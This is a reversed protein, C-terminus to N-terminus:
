NKILKSIWLGQATEVRVTYIGVPLQSINIQKEFGEEEINMMTQGVLNILSIREMQLSADLRIQQQAPNPYMKIATSPLLNPIGVTSEVLRVTITDISVTANNDVSTIVLEVFEEGEGDTDGIIELPLAVSDDECGSVTFTTDAFNFDTGLTATSGAGLAVSVTTTDPNNNTAVVVIDLTSSVTDSVTKSDTYFGVVPNRPSFDALRTPQLQYDETFPANRDFQWGIGTVNWWKGGPYAVGDIDTDTDIRVTFTDVGNTFDINVGSNTLSDSPWDATDVLAVCTLTIYESETSEDLFDVEQPTVLANGSSLLIIDAVQIEALGNFQIIEGQVLLEDGETFQYGSPADNFNFVNIGGTSDILAFSYGDAGFFDIGHAIGQVQAVVNLSDADGDGDSDATLLGIPYQVFDNDEITITLVSDMGLVGGGTPASLELVLTEDSEVDMDDLIEVQLTDSPNSSTLMLMTDVFVYDAGATATSAAGISLSVNVTDTGVTDLNVIIDIMGDGESVDLSSASFAVEPDAAAAAVCLMGSPGGTMTHAGLSDFTNQPFVLWQTAGVAWDTTGATVDPKRVLTHNATTGTDVPWSSGPDEFLVGIIDLTDGTGSNILAVADDGNFHVVSPFGLVTDAEAQMLPDAQDTTIIYVEGPALLGQPVFTNFGPGGNFVEFIEYNSLDATDGSPNYIEVGKNNGSGEIYESFYLEVAGPTGTMTHSGLSDFTNSPLVLWQTAGITWDTTGATVNPKRVLTHNATTGTDVPWSSGPDVFLEGIIDITDGTATNILAVGDDGNFHVVSPFGLVTDAEAQMLPDAQDTTIIYVEGPALLGEPVFTNFGPGGNFVEFIEYNSLDATDGSPNYIEVGKNNGSGEIYESFYLDVCQANISLAMLMAGMFILLPKLNM